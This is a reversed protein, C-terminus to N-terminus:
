IKQLVFKFIKSSTQNIKRDKTTKAKSTIDLFGSDLELTFATNEELFKLKAKVGSGNQTLKYITHLSPGTKNQM